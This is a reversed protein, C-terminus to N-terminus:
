DGKNNSSRRNLTEVMEHVNSSTSSVTEFTAKIRTALPEVSTAELQSSLEPSSELRTAPLTTGPLREIANIPITNHIQFQKFSSTANKLLFAPGLIGLLITVLASSFLGLSILIGSFGVLLPLLIIILSFNRISRRLYKINKQSTSPQSTRKPFNQTLFGDLHSHHILQAPYATAREIFPPLNEDSYYLLIPIMQCWVTHGSEDTLVHAKKGLLSIAHSQFTSNLQYPANPLQTQLDSLAQILLTVEDRFTTSMETIERYVLIDCCVVDQIHYNRVALHTGDERKPLPVFEYQRLLAQIGDTSGHGNRNVENQTM